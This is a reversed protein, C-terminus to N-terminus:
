LVLAAPGSAMPSVATVWPPELALNAWAWHGEM